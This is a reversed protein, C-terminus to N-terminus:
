KKRWREPITPHTLWHLAREIARRAPTLRDSGAARVAMELPTVICWSVSFLVMSVTWLPLIVGVGIIVAPILVLCPIIPVLVVLM